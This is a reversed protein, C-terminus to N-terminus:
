VYRLDAALHTNNTILRRGSSPDIDPCPPPWHVPHWELYTDEYLFGKIYFPANRQAKIAEEISDVAYIEIGTKGDAKPGGAWFIGKQWLDTMYSTHEKHIGKAIDEWGEEGHRTKLLCLFLKKPTKQKM